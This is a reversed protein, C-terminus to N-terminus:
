RAPRQRARGPAFDSVSDAARRVLSLPDAV